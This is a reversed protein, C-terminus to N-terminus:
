VKHTEPLRASGRSTDGRGHGAAVDIGMGKKGARKGLKHEKGTGDKDKVLVGVGDVKMYETPKDWNKLVKAAEDALDKDPCFALVLQQSDGGHRM